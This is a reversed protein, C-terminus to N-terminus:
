TLEHEDDRAFDAPVPVEVVGGVGVPLSGLPLDDIFVDVTNCDCDGGGALQASVTAWCRRRELM